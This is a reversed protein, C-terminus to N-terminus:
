RKVRTQTSMRARVWWWLSRGGHCIDHRHELLWQGREASIKRVRRFGNGRFLRGEADAVEYRDGGIKPLMGVFFGVAWHDQPDGDRWKTALVYAGVELRDSM